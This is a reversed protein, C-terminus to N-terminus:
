EGALELQNKVLNFYYRQNNILQEHTGQEAVRGQEIVIIHDANRVTSLRHAILVVTRRDFFRELNETIIRENNSDLASTAEDFFLYAPDKYVARAIFVRQKQGTSLGMGDNGIKTEARMPLADVMTKINAAEMATDLRQKDPAGTGLAVNRALSDSFIYGEQMVVGCRSRWATTHIDKLATDGIMIEGETYPYFGLLLKMLTTKGSGSSGVIATVKGAPIRINLNKLVYNANGPYKFNLNTISIDSNLPIDKKAHKNISDEDDMSYVESLRGLSLLADQLSKFFAVLQLVPGNMQGTIYSISLMMGLTISGDIVLKAALFTILINKLENIFSSGVNQMQDIAMGKLNIGYQEIQLKEWEAKKEAEANHLKIEPMGTIIELIKGQNSTAQQFRKFDLDARRKMFVLVWTLYLGTGLLFVFFININYLALIVSFVILTIVNFLMNLMWNTLFSEIRQNDEIRQFIDNKMRNDFYSVPLKMLKIFFEGTILINVRSSIHLLIWSRIVDVSIRGIFLLLQALLALHIFDLDHNRIGKDVISQTIFPFLLQLFSGILLGIILQVFLKKYRLLHVSLKKIGGGTNSQKKPKIAKFGAAPELALIIGEHEDPAWCKIFEDVSYDLLGHVPDSVSVKGEKIKYIVVYHSQNWFAICPLRQRRLAAFSLKYADTSFGMKEAADRINLLSSGLRNTGCLERLEPLGYKKGYHRAVIRLCTPGCDMQDPQIYHPFSM